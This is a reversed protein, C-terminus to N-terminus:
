LPKTSKQHTLWYGLAGIILAGCGGLILWGTSSTRGGSQPLLSAPTPTLTPTEMPAAPASPPESPEETPEETPPETPTPTATSTPTATPTETPFKHTPTPPLETKQALDRAPAAARLGPTWVLSSTQGVIWLLCLAGLILWRIHRRKDRM